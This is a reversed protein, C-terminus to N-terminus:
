TASHRFSVDSDEDLRSTLVKKKLVNANHSACLCVRVDVRVRSQTCTNIHARTLSQAQSTACPSVRVYACVCVRAFVCGVPGCLACARVKKEHQRAHKKRHRLSDLRSKTSIGRRKVM